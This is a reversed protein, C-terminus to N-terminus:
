SRDSGHVDWYYIIYMDGSVLTAFAGSFLGFGLLFTINWGDMKLPSSNTEPLTVGSTFPTQITPKPPGFSMKEPPPGPHRPYLDM